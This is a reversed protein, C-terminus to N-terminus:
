SPLFELAVRDIWHWGQAFREAWEAPDVHMALAPNVDAWQHIQATQQMLQQHVQSRDRYVMLSQALDDVLDQRLSDPFEQRLWVDWHM